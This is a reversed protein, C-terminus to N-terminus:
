KKMERAIDAIDKKDSSFVLCNRACFDRLFGEDGDSELERLCHNFHAVIISKEPHIGMIQSLLYM